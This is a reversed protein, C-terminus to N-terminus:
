YGALLSGPAREIARLTVRFPAALVERRHALWESLVEVLNM